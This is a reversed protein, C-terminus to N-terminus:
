YYCIVAQWITTDRGDGREREEVLAFDANDEDTSKPKHKGSMDLIIVAVFVLAQSDFMYQKLFVFIPTLGFLLM